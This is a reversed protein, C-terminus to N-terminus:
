LRFGRRLALRHARFFRGPWRGALSSATGVHCREVDGEGWEGIEIAEGTTTAAQLSVCVCYLGRRRGRPLQTSSCVLECWCSLESAKRRTSYLGLQYSYYGLQSEGHAIGWGWWCRVDSHYTYIYISSLIHIHML